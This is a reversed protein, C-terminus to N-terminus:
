IHVKMKSNKGLQYSIVRGGCTTSYQAAVKVAQISSAGMALAGVAFDSGSGITLWHSFCRAAGDKGWTFIAGEPDVIMGFSDGEGTFTKVLSEFSHNKDLATASQIINACQITSGCLGFLYGGATKGIKQVETFLTGSYTSLTDSAIIQDRYVVVTM